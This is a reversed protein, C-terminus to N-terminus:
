NYLYKSGGVDWALFYVRDINNLPLQIKRLDQSTSNKIDIRVVNQNKQELFKCLRKGLFGESGLILNNM